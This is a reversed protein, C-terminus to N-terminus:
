TLDLGGGENASLALKTYLSLLGPSEPRPRAMLQSRRQSLVSDMEAASLEKGGAGVIDLRRQDLDILILDGEEVLAIPGGAAAEPSVHGIVPGRSAGSFRGDTVLAVSSALTPNSAIAETVYFQEPMGSGRPGEYRIIIVDGPAVKDGYIADIADEQCDFVRAKGVLHRLSAAVASRKLVAGDPALSGYLFLLAGQPALPESVPRIIDRVTLRFPALNQNGRAFFGSRQLEELNEGLTRGTVTLCDLNLFERLEWMIRYAGGAKWLLDTSHVGSPRVNVIYPVRDNIEQVKAFDWQLGASKALAPLHLMVNTSGGIAAHVVIANELAEQTVIRSFTVGDRILKQIQRGAERCGRDMDFLHPPRLAAGPLSLGMAEALIQMSSATGLFACSGPSPCAHERLYQYEANSIEGRRLKSHITGVQELSMSPLTLADSAPGAEMVGAQVMITPMDLRAAALLHGPISKDCGSILLMGDFHGGRAHMETALAMVERSPLSLDMADTGQLIGDCLDTCHYRGAVGGGEIIGERVVDAMHLLHVSCPHSDGGVTEILVQPKGLDEISWGCGLRLSDIEPAIERMRQSHLM